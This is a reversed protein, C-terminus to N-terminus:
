AAGTPYATLWDETPLHPCGRFNVMNDFKQRCTEARKDCGAVVRVRDGAALGRVTDWLMMRRGGDTLQEERVHTVLGAGAGTLVELSGFTYWGPGANSAGVEVVTDEIAIVVLEESHAAGNMGCAKDGFRAGCQKHYLRGIPRNLEETVGRLEAKFAGGTREIEGLTGRFLIARDAPDLWNVQWIEVRAGDFRGAFIDDETLAADSLAGVVESNDVSLGTTQELAHATMAESPRFEAGDFSLVSDHDTFAFVRGDSRTLRWCRCLAGTRDMM